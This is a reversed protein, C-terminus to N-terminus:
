PPLLWHEQGWSSVMSLILHNWWPDSSPAAEQGERDLTSREPCGDQQQCYSLNLGQPDGM